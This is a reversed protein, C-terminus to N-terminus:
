LQSSVCNRAARRFTLITSKWLPIEHQTIQRESLRPSIFAFMITTTIPIDSRQDVHLTSTILMSLPFNDNLSDEIIKDTTACIALNQKKFTLMKCPCNAPFFWRFMQKTHETERAESSPEAMLTLHWEARRTIFLM